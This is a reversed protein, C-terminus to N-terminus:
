GSLAEVLCASVDALLTDPKISVGAVVSFVTTLRELPFGDAESPEGLLPSKSLSTVSRQWAELVEEPSPVGFGHGVPAAHRLRVLASEGFDLAVRCREALTDDRVWDVAACKRRCASACVGLAHAVHSHQRDLYSRWGLPPEIAVRLSRAVASQDSKTHDCSREGLVGFRSGEATLEAPWRAPDGAHGLVPEWALLPLYESAIHIAAIMASMERRRWRAEIVELLLRYAPRLSALAGRPRERASQPMHCARARNQLDRPIVAVGRGPRPVGPAVPFPHEIETGFDEADLDLLREGFACLATVRASKVPNSLHAPALAAVDGFSYRRALAVLLDRASDM